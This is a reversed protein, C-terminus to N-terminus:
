LHVYQMEGLWGVAFFYTEELHIVNSNNKNKNQFITDYLWWGNVSWKRFVLFKALQQTVLLPELGWHFWSYYPFCDSLWHFDSLNRLLCQKVAVWENKLCFASYWGALSCQRLLGLALTRREVTYSSSSLCTGM